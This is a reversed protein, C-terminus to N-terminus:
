PGERIDDEDVAGVEGGPAAATPPYQVLIPGDGLGEWDDPTRGLILVREGGVTPNSYTKM